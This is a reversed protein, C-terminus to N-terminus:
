KGSTFLLARLNEQLIKEEGVDSTFCKDQAIIKVISEGIQEVQLWPTSTIQAISTETFDWFPSGLWMTSGIAQIFESKEEFRGPNFSIDIIKFDALSPHNIIVSNHPQSKYYKLRKPDGENQSFAYDEDYIFAYIFNIQDKFNNVVINWDILGKKSKIYIKDYKINQDMSNMRVFFNQDISRIYCRNNMVGILDIRAHINEVRIRKKSAIGLLYSKQDIGLTTFADLILRWCTGYDLTEHTLVIDLAEYEFLSEDV